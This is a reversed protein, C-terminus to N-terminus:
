VTVAVLAAPETVSGAVTVTVVGDGVSGVTVIFADGVEMVGPAADIKVHDLVFAVDTEILWPLPVTAADPVLDTLGIAVVM